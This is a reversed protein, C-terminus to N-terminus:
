PALAAITENIWNQAVVTDVRARDDRTFCDFGGDSAVAVVVSNRWDTSTERLLTPAGSDGYCVIGPLSWSAWERAVVKELRSIKIRRLGDWESRPPSTGGPSSKLFGYGVVAMTKGTADPRELTGPLALQAPTIDSVAQELFVLGIDLAGPRLPVYPCDNLRCFAFSPHFVLQRVPRWSARDFANPSFTVFAKIFPALRPQTQSTCHGAVLFAREHILTGTCHSIIGQQLGADNQEVLYILAGVNSFVNGTDLEKTAFAADNSDNSVSAASQLRNTDTARAVLLMVMAAAGLVTLTLLVYCVRNRRRASDTIDSSM